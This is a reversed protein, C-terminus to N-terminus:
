AQRRGRGLMLLGGLGMLALSAPEPILSLTAGSVQFNNGFPDANSGEFLLDGNGYLTQYFSLDAGAVTFEMLSGSLWNIPSVTGLNDSLTVSGATSGGFTVSEGPLSFNFSTATTTGGNFSLVANGTGFGADRIEDAVDLQGGSVTLASGTGSIKLDRGVQFTGGNIALTAENVITDRNNATLDATGADLTFASGAGLSIGRTNDISGGDMLWTTNSGLSWGGSEFGEPTITGATHVVDYGSYDASSQWGADLTLTGQTGGTPLGNDWNGANDLLSDSGDADNFDTTAAPAAPGYAALLAAATIALTGTKPFKAARSRAHSLPSILMNM